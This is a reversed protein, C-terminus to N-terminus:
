FEPLHDLNDCPTNDRVTKLYKRGNIVVVYVLAGIRYSDSGPIATVTKFTLGQEIYWVAKDRSLATWSTLLGDDAVAAVRIAEIHTRTTNYRVHSVGYDAWKSTAISVNQM